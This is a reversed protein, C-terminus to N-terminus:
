RRTTRAGYIAAHRCGGGDAFAGGMMKAHMLDAQKDLGLVEAAMKQVESVPAAAAATKTGISSMTEGIAAKLSASATKEVAKEPAKAEKTPESTAVHATKDFGSLISQLNM